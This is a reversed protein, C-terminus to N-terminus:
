LRSLKRDQMRRFSFFVYAKGGLDLLRRVAELRKLSPELGCSGYIIDAGAVLLVGPSAVGSELRDLSVYAEDFVKSCDTLEKKWPRLADTTIMNVKRYNLVRLLGRLMAEDGKSGAGDPAIVTFVTEGDSIGGYFAYPSNVLLGCAKMFGDREYIKWFLEKGEPKPFPARLAHQFAAADGLNTERVEAASALARVAESGKATHALVLSVGKDDDMEALGTQEIGWFDGLTIDAARQPKAFRCSHCSPRLILNSLFLETFRRDAYRYTDGLRKYRVAIRGHWGEEKGRFTVDSIKGGNEGEVLAVYDEWARPSPVGHCVLDCLLLNASDAKSQALFNSLGAAQCPTGVFMVKLGDELDNRVMPFSDGLDSQVYKSGRMKAVAECNDARVHRVYLKEDLVAGYVAGGASIIGEALLTFAGGSSSDARIAENRCKVAFAETEHAETRPLNLIPCAETCKGCKICAKESVSPYSFGKGDRLM